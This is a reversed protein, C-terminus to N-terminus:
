ITESSQTEVDANDATTSKKFHDAIQAASKNRTEPLFVAIFILGLVSIGAYTWLLGHTGLISNIM